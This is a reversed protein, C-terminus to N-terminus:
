KTVFAALEEATCGPAHFGPLQLKLGVSVLCVLFDRLFAEDYRHRFAKPLADAISLDAFPTGQALAVLDDLV